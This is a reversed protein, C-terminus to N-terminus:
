LPKPSLVTAPASSRSSPLPKGTIDSPRNSLGQDDLIQGLRAHPEAHKPNAKLLLQFQRAAPDLEGTKRFILGSNFRASEHQSDRFLADGFKGIAEEYLGKRAYLVGLNNYAYVYSPDRVIVARYGKIADDIDGHSELALALRLRLEANDPNGALATRSEEIARLLTEAQKAESATVPTPSLPM